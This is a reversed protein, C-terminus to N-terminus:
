EYREMWNEIAELVENFGDGYNHNLGKLAVLKSDKILKNLKESQSFPVVEDDISHIILCKSSIKSSNEYPAYRLADEYLKYSRKANVVKIFGDKKWTKLDLKEYLELYNLCPASFVIFKFIDNESAYLNTLCGGYSNGYVGINKKDVWEQSLLYDMASAYDKLGVSITSYALDGESKGCGSFDMRMVACGFSQFLNSLQNYRESDKSMGFGAALFVIGQKSLNENRDILCSLKNGSSSQIYFEEQM